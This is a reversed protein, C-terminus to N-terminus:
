TTTRPFLRVPVVLTFKLPVGAANVTIEAVSITAVTGVPAVVPNTVTAVNPPVSVLLWGNRTIGQALTWALM